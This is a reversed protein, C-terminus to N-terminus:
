FINKLNKNIKDNNNHTHTHMGTSTHPGMHLDSSMKEFINKKEKRTGLISSLDESKFPLHQQAM